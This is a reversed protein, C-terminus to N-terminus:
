TGGGVGEDDGEVGEALDEDDTFAGGDDMVDEGAFCFDDLGGHFDDVVAV